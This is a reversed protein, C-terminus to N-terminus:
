QSVTLTAPTCSHRLPSCCPRASLATCSARGDAGCRLCARPAAFSSRARATLASPYARRAGAGQFAGGPGRGGSRVRARACRRHGDAPRRVHLCDGRMVSPRNESLGPVALALFRGHHRLLACPQDFAKIDASMQAEEIWLLARLRAAHADASRQEELARLKANIADRRAVGRLAAHISPPMAHQAPASFHGDHHARSFPPVGRVINKEGLEQQLSIGRPRPPPVYPSTPALMEVEASVVSFFVARGVCFSGFDFVLLAHASSPSPPAIYRLAISYTMGKDIKVVACRTAPQASVGFEDSLTLGDVPTCMDVAVLTRSIGSPAANHVRLQLDAHAGPRLKVTLAAGAGGHAGCAIRVGGKDQLLRPLDVGRRKYAAVLRASLGEEGGLTPQHAPRPAVDLYVCFQDRVGACTLPIDARTRMYYLVNSFTGAIQANVFRERLWERSVDVRGASRRQALAQLEASSSLVQWFAVAGASARNMGNRTRGMENEEEQEPAEINWTGGAWGKSHRRKSFHDVEM